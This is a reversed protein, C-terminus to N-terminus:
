PSPPRYWRSLVDGGAGYGSRVPIELGSAGERGASSPGVPRAYTPVTLSAATVYGARLEGKGQVLLPPLSLPVEVVGGAVQSDSIVRGISREGM